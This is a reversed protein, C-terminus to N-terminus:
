EEQMTLIEMYPRRAPDADETPCFSLMGPYMSSSSIWMAVGFNGNYGSTFLQVTYPIKLVFVSSDDTSFSQTTVYDSTSPSYALDDWDTSDLLSIYITFTKDYDESLDPDVHL